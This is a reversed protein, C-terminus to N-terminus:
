YYDGINFLINRNRYVGRKIAYINIREFTINARLVLVRNPVLQSEAVTLDGRSTRLSINYYSEINAFWTSDSWVYPIDTIYLFPQPLSLDGYTTLYFIGINLIILEQSLAHLKMSSGTKMYVTVVTSKDFMFNFIEKSVSV